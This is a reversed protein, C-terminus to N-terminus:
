HARYFAYFALRKFSLGRIDNNLCFQAIIYPMVASISKEALILRNQEERFLRNFRKSLYLLIESVKFFASVDTGIPIRDNFYNEFFNRWESRPLMNIDRCIFIARSFETYNDITAQIPISCFYTELISLLESDKKNDVDDFCIVHFLQDFSFISRAIERRIIKRYEFNLESPSLNCKIKTPYFTFNNNPYYKHYKLIFNKTKHSCLVNEYSFSKQPYLYSNCILATNLNCFFSQLKVSKSTNM